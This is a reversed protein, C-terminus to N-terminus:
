PRSRLAFYIGAGVVLAILAASGRGDIAPVKHGGGVPTIPCSGCDTVCSSCSESSNCSGDGCFPPCVGCDGPCTACTESGNCLFDGCFPPCVGCDGPCTACTESGNCLFDGCFPGCSGCDLQCTSCAESGNCSGDGCFPLGSTQSCCTCDIGADSTQIFDIVGHAVDVRDGALISFVAMDTLAANADVAASFKAAVQGATETAITDIQVQEGEIQALLTGGTAVGTFVQFPATHDTPWGGVAGVLGFSPGPASCLNSVSSESTALGDPGTFDSNFRDINGSATWILTDGPLATWSTCTDAANADCGCTQVNPCDLGNVTLVTPGEVGLGDRELTLTASFEGGNDAYANCNDNFALCVEGGHNLVRQGSSGMFFCTPTALPLEWIESESSANTATVTLLNEPLSVACVESPDPDAADYVLADVISCADARPGPDNCFTCAPPSNPQQGSPDFNGKPLIAKQTSGNPMKILVRREKGIMGAGTVKHTKRETDGLTNKTPVDVPQEDALVITFTRDEEATGPGITEGEPATWCDFEKKRSGMKIREYTWGPPGMTRQTDLELPVGRKKGWRPTEVYFESVDMNGAVTLVIEQTLGNFLECAGSRAVCTGTGPGTCCDHPMGAAICQITPSLCIDRNGTKEDGCLIGQRYPPRRFVELPQKPICNGSGCQDSNSCEQGVNIGGSDCVTLVCWHAPGCHHFQDITVTALAPTGLSCVCFFLAVRVLRNTM